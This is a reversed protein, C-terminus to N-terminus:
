LMLAHLLIEVKIVWGHSPLGRKQSEMTHVVALQLCARYYFLPVILGGLSALFSYVQCPLNLVNYETFLGYQVPLLVRLPLSGYRKISRLYYIQGLYIISAMLVMLISPLLYCLALFISDLPQLGSVILM